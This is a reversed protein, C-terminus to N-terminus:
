LEKGRMSVEIRGSTKQLEVLAPIVVLAYLKVLFLGQWLMFDFVFEKLSNTVSDNLAM